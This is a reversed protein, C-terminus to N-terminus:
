NSHSTILKNVMAIADKQNIGGYMLLTIYNRAALQFDPHENGLQYSVELLGLLVQRLLPEAGEYDGKASLISAVNSLTKLTTPHEAGLIQRRISLAQQALNEAETYNGTATLLASLSNMSTVTDLNNPGLIKTRGKIARRYLHEAGVQDGKYYLIVALNHV